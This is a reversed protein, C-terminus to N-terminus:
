RFGRMSVASLSRSRRSKRMSDNLVKNLVHGLHFNSNAFPPSDHSIWRVRDTAAERLRKYIGIQSWLALMQPETQPLNAKMPFATKPLNLTPKYDMAPLTM